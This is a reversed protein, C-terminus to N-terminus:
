ANRAGPATTSAVLVRCHEWWRQRHTMERLTEIQYGAKAERQAAELTNWAGCCLGDPNFIQYVLGSEVFDRLDPM